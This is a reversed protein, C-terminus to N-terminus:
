SSSARTEGERELGAKRKQEHELDPRWQLQQDQLVTQRAIIDRVVDQVGPKGNTKSVFHKMISDSTIPKDPHSTQRIYNSVDPEKPLSTWAHPYESYNTRNSTPKLLTLRSPGGSLRFFDDIDDHSVASLDSPQWQPTEPPKRLLRASVGEVFDPHSMFRAAIQHEREFTEAIRWKRGLEMQRLTVKLSTPSRGKVAELTKRAWQSESGASSSEQELLSLIREIQQPEFCRDIARRRDGSIQLPEHPPLSAIFEAITNNIIVYRDELSAYDPITLEALRHELDPLSSSHVYHTAVGHYSYQTLM